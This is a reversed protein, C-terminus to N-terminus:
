QLTHLATIELHAASPVYFLIATNEKLYFKNGEVKRNLTIAQTLSYILFDSTLSHSLVLYIDVYTPM